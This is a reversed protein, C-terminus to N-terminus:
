GGGINQQAMFSKMQKHNADREALDDIEWNSIFARRVEEFLLKGQTSSMIAARERPALCCRALLLWGRVISLFAEPM